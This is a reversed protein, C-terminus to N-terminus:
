VHARGIKLGMDDKRACGLLAPDKPGRERLGVGVREAARARPGEVPCSFLVMQQTQLTQALANRLPKALEMFTPMQALCSRM